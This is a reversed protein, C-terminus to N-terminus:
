KYICKKIYFFDLFLSYFPMIFIQFIVQLELSAIGM